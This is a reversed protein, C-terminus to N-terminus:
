EGTGLFVAFNRWNKKRVGRKRGRMGKREREGRESENGRERERERMENGRELQIDM